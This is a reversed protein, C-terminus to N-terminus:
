HIEQFIIQELRGIMLAYALRMGNDMEERHTLEENLITRLTQAEQLTIEKHLLKDLLEDKELHNPSKLMEIVRSEIATWFLDVKTELAILREKIGTIMGFHQYLLGAVAIIIALVPLFESM